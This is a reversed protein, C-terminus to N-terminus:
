QHGAAVSQISRRLLGPGPYREHLTRARVDRDGSRPHHISVSGPAPAEGNACVSQAGHRRRQGPATRPDHNEHDTRRANRHSLCSGQRDLPRVGLSRTRHSAGSGQSARPYWRYESDQGTCRHKTKEATTGPTGPPSVLHTREPTSRPAACLYVYLNSRPFGAHRHGWSLAAEPPPCDTGTVLLAETKSSRSTPAAPSRAEAYSASAIAKGACRRRRSPALIRSLPSTGSQTRPPHHQFKKEDHPRGRQEYPRPGLAVRHIRTRGAFPAYVYLNMMRTCNSTSLPM